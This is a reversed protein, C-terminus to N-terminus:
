IWIDFGKVIDNWWPNFWTFLVKDIYIMLWTTTHIVHLYTCSSNSINLACSDVEIWDKNCPHQGWTCLHKVITSQKFPCEGLWIKCPCHYRDQRTANARTKDSKSTQLRLGTYTKCGRSAFWGSKHAEMRMKKNFISNTELELKSSHTLCEDFPHITNVDM